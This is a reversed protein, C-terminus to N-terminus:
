QLQACPARAHRRRHSRPNLSCTRHKYVRLTWAGMDLVAVLWQVSEEIQQDLLTLLDNLDKVRDKLDDHLSDERDKEKQLRDKIFDQRLKIAAQTRHNGNLIHVTQGYAKVTFQVPQLVSWPTSPDTSLSNRDVWDRKVLIYMPEQVPNRGSLIFDKHLRTVALPNIPRANLEGFQLAIKPHPPDATNLRAYGITAHKVAEQLKQLNRGLDGADATADALAVPALEKKKKGGKAKGGAAKKGGRGQKVPQTPQPQAM